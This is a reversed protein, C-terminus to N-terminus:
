GDNHEGELLGAEMALVMWDISDDGSNLDGDNTEPLHNMAIASDHHIDAEGPLTELREAWVTALRLEYDENTPSQRIAISAAFLGTAALTVVIALLRKKPPSPEPLSHRTFASHSTAIQCLLESERLLIAQLTEDDLDAEFAQSEAVDMEGLLYALCRQQQDNATPEPSRNM